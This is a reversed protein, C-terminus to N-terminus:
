TTAGVISEILKRAAAYNGGNYVAGSIEIVRGAQVAPLTEWLPNRRFAALDREEAGAAATWDPVVIVDGTVVDLREASINEVYGGGSDEGVGEPVETIAVGADKMVSGPFSGPGDMRFTGDPDIRVFSVTMETFGGLSDLAAEYDEEVKRARENRGVAAADRDFRPRWDGTNGYENFVTPAIASLDEYFDELFEYGLIMQPDTTALAELNPEENSGVLEIDDPNVEDPLIESIPSMWEPINEPAAVPTLGLLALNVATVVYVAAVRTPTAPVETEGMAHEVTRTEGVATEGGQGAEGGCGYPALVLLSGAGILFERRTPHYPSMGWTRLMPAPTALQWSQAPVSHRLLLEAPAREPAPIELTMNTMYGSREAENIPSVERTTRRDGPYRTATM